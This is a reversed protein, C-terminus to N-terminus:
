RIGWVRVPGRDTLGMEPQVGGPDVSSIREPYDSPVDEVRLSALTESEVDLTPRRRSWAVASLYFCRNCLCISTFALHRRVSPRSLSPFALNAPELNANARM